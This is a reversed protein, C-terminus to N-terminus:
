LKLKRNSGQKKLSSPYQAELTYYKTQPTGRKDSTLLEDLRM